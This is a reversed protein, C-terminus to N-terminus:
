NLTSATTIGNSNKPYTGEFMNKAIVLLVHSQEGFLDYPRRGSGGPGVYPGEHPGEHAIYVAAGSIRLIFKGFLGFDIYSM